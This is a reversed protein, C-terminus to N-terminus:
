VPPSLATRALSAGRAASAAGGLSVKPSLTVLERVECDHGVQAHVNVVVHKSLAAGPGVYAFAAVFTGEDITASPSILSIPHLVTAFQASGLSKAM